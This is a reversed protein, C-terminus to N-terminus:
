ICAKWCYLGGHDYTSAGPFGEYLDSRDFSLIFLETEDGNTFPVLTCWPGTTNSALYVDQTFEGLYTLGAEYKRLHLKNSTGGSTLYTTSGFHVFQNGTDRVGAPVEATTYEQVIGDYLTPSRFTKCGSSITNGTMVWQSSSAEYYFDIDEVYSAGIGFFSGNANKLQVSNRVIIVGGQLLDQKTEFYLKPRNNDALGKGQYDMGCSIGKWSQSNRDYVAKISDDGLVVNEDTGDTRVQFIAGIMQVESSNFNIRVIQTYLDSITTGTGEVLFYLWNGRQIFTGDEYTLFRISVSNAGSAIRNSFGTFTVSDSSTFNDTQAFVYTKWTDLFEVKRADFIAYHEYRGIWNWSGDANVKNIILSVGTNQVRLVAGAMDSGAFSTSNLLVGDAYIECIVQANSVRVSVSNAQTPDAFMIGVTANGSIRDIAIESTAFPMYRDAFMFTRGNATPGQFSVKGKNWSYSFVNGPTIDYINSQLNWPDNSLDMFSLMFSDAANYFDRRAWQKAFTYGLPNSFSNFGPTKEPLGSLDMHYNANFVKAVPRTTYAAQSIMASVDDVRTLSNPYQKKVSYVPDTTKRVRVAIYGDQTAAARRTATVYGGGSSFTYLDAVWGRSMDCQMLYAIQEGVTASGYQGYMLVIDGKRVPIYYMRWANYASGSVVRGGSYMVSNDVIASANSTYDTTVTAGTIDDAFVYLQATKTITAAPTTVRVRVYVYGDQTAKGSITGDSSSGPSTYVGLNGVYKLASDLQIVYAMSEGSTGSGLQGKYTILDGAKVPLYVAQWSAGANDTVTGDAYMVRGTVTYSTDAATVDTTTRNTATLSAKTRLTLPDEVAVFLSSTKTITAAPTTVRVRVYVFGDQTATGALSGTHSTGPSTYSSMPAVFNKATDLQILYAIVQGSTASGIEGQYRVVDGARVPVYAAKWSAGANDVKSGDAYLVRGVVYGTTDLNTVDLTKRNTYAAETSTTPSFPSTAPAFRYQQKLIVAPTPTVRVRVYAYGNQTAVGSVKGTTAAGTSTYTAINGVIALNSDLQVIYAIVEGPTASGVEGRYEVTDGARVPLYAAKWSDGAADTVTGNAYIVRGPVYWTTNANTVDLMPRNTIIASVSDQSAVGGEDGIDSQLVLTKKRQTLTFVAGVRVRVYVYGDQTATGQLTANDTVSGTSTWTALPAVFQKDADLQIIYAMQEGPTNSGVTGSYSVTEGTRVRLYYANWSPSSATTGDGYMVLGTVIEAESKADGTIYGTKLASMSPMAIGTAALTGGNNIYENALTSDASDRVWCYGGNLINGASVDSQAATLSLYERVSNSISGQGVYEAVEVAVGANNKYYRFALVNGVGQPVRFYQGSTTGAIGATTDAFTLKNDGFEAASLAYGQAEGASSAAQNAFDAIVNLTDATMMNAVMDNASWARALTGEQAREITFIDGAKATVNVIEVQSGTAADTITLKFYSEGAVADPFEAGTGASVILSTDTASIASALVSEANNTALLTLAM